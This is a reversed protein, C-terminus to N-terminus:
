CCHQLLAYEAVEGEPRVKTLCQSLGAQGRRSGLGVEGGCIQWHGVEGRCKQVSGLTMWLWRVARDSTVGSCEVQCGTTCTQRCIPSPSRNPLCCFALVPRPHAAAAVLSVCCTERSTTPYFTDSTLRMSSIFTKASGAAGLPVCGHCYVRISPKQGAHAHQPTRLSM